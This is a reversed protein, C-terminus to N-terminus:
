THVWAQYVNCGERIRVLQAILRTWRFQRGFGTCDDQVEEEKRGQKAGTVYRKLEYNIREACDKRDQLQM